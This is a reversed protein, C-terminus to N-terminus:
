VDLILMRHSSKPASSLIFDQGQSRFMKPPKPSLGQASNLAIDLRARWNLPDKIALDSGSHPVLLVANLEYIRAM